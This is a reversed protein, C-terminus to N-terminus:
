VGQHARNDHAWHTQTAPAGQASTAYSSGAGNLSELALAFARRNEAFRQLPFRVSAGALVAALMEMHAAWGALARAADENAPIGLTLSVAVGEECSLLDWLVPRKLRVDDSWSYELRCGPNWATVQCSISQGSNPFDIRVAGGLRPEISGPALWDPLRAETTLAQWVEAASSDVTMVLVAEVRDPYRRLEGLQVFDDSM